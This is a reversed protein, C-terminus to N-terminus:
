KEKSVWSLWGRLQSRRNFVRCAALGRRRDATNAGSLGRRDSLEVLSQNLVTVYSVELIGSFKENPFSMTVNELASVAEDDM